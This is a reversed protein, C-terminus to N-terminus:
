ESLGHQQLHKIMEQHIRLTSMEVINKHTANNVMWVWGGDWETGHAEMLAEVERQFSEVAHNLYFSDQMGCAIRIRKRVIDGYRDWNEVVLRTIDFKKWHALVVDRDIEGTRADFMPVPLGTEPDKPGFMAEWADWQQGSRGHPDIAFEMAAEQRVTMVVTSENFYGVERFSATEEGEANVFMSPERYLDTLQFHRFDIPDPASVWAGGFEEPWNLQLWLSTWAGSSHGYLLRGELKETIHFTSKLHPIFEKVLATGRPGLNPSDVFGHHGLPADPDLMIFIAQPAFEPLSFKLMSAYNVADFHRGGFGPTIYVVPWRRDKQAPDDYGNPLAVGARMMIDRGYHESLRESRLEVWHINDLEAPSQEVPPSVQNVLRISVDDAVGRKLSIRSINSVVNGPAELMSRLSQDADLVAQVRFEGELDDLTGFGTGTFALTHGPIEITDGPKFGEVAFSAIPQPSEFFPTEMPPTRSLMRAEDSIFCLVIRGTAPADRVGEVLTIRYVDGASAGTHLWVSLGCVLAMVVSSFRSRM